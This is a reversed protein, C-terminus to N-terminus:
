TNAPSFYTAVVGILLSLGAALETVQGAALSVGIMPLLFGLAAAIVKSYKRM